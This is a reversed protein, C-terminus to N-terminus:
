ISDIMDLNPGLKNKSQEGCDIKTNPQRRDRWYKQNQQVHLSLVQANWQQRKCKNPECWECWFFYTQLREIVAESWHTNERLQNPIFLCFSQSIHVSIWHSYSSVPKSVEPYFFQQLSCWWHNYKTFKFLTLENWTFLHMTKAKWPFCTTQILGLMILHIQM